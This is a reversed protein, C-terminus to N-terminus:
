VLKAVTARFRSLETAVTTHSTGAREAVERLTPAEGLDRATDLWVAIVRITLPEGAQAHSAMAARVTEITARAELLRAIRDDDALLDPDLEVEARRARKRILDRVANRAMTLLYGWPQDMAPLPGTLLREMVDQFVDDTDFEPVGRGLSAKLHRM